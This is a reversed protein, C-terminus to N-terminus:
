RRQAGCFSDHATSLTAPGFPSVMSWGAAAAAHSGTASWTTLPGSPASPRLAATTLWTQHAYVGLNDIYFDLGPRPPTSSSGSTIAHQPQSGGPTEWRGTTTSVAGIGTNGGDGVGPGGPGRSTCRCRAVSSQPGSGLTGHGAGRRQKPSGDSSCPRSGGNPAAYSSHELEAGGRWVSQGSVLQGGGSSQRGVSVVHDAPRGRGRDRLQRESWTRASSSQGLSGASGIEARCRGPRMGHLHQQALFLGGLLFSRKM